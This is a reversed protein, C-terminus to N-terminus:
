IQFYTCESLQFWTQSNQPKWPPTILSQPKRHINGQMGPQTTRSKLPSLNRQSTLFQAWHHLMVDWFIPVKFVLKVV